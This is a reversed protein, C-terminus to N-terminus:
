REDTVRITVNSAFDTNSRFVRYFLDGIVVQALESFIVGVSGNFFKPTAERLLNAPFGFFLRKASPIVFTYNGEVFLVKSKATNPSYINIFQDGLDGIAWFVNSKRENIEVNVTISWFHMDDEHLGLYTSPSVIRLMCLNRLDDDMLLSREIRNSLRFGKDYDNKASRVIIYINPKHIISDDMVRETMYGTSQYVFVCTSGAGGDGVGSYSYPRPSGYFSNISTIDDNKDRIHKLLIEEAYQTM